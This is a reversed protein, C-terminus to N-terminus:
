NQNEKPLLDILKDYDVDVMLDDGQYMRILTGKGMGKRSLARINDQNIFYRGIKWWVTTKRTSKTKETSDLVIIEKAM